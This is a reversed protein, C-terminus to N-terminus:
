SLLQVQPDIKSVNFQLFYMNLLLKLNRVCNVYRTHRNFHFHFDSTMDSEKHGWLSYLRHFEGPWLVPTPLREKRWSIKEVWPSFGARGCQLCIVLQPVLLAWSYQLPYGVGEGASRGLGPISGSDGSNCSEGKRIEKVFM